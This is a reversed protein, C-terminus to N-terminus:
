YGGDDGYDQNGGRSQRKNQNFRYVVTMTIQRERWQFESNSTFEDTVTFQQRKRSNFLDRVNLSITANDNLFDKSFALDLSAIPDTKTQANERPGRYFANTQWQVKWPLDIKSSFRGFFSENEAGFDRGNFQGDSIFKFYNFSGNLRWWDTPNYLVGIEAGYRENSSLNIPISRIIPIGDSTTQGTEEQIREFSDTERQYYVSGNLTLLKDFRKLYGLDFANSFAPNLSPNGQFINTRSSRSPFPNVFWGRPRNIRRNYGLTINEDEGIEFNLNVTPFFGSFNNDFNLDVDEGLLEQINNIDGYPTTKGKLQTHEYRLGLLFSFKGIKNGYQSYVATVNENYDFVNSITDDFVLQGNQDLTNLRFDTVENEYNGRFGAEFQADGMPRVYDAQILLDTQDNNEVIDDQAILEPALFVENEEILNTTKEDDIAYQFDATLRHGESDYRKEFNVAFQHTMEEELENEVRITQSALDGNIFRETDNNTLDSDDGMRNFYSVTVETTDNFFYTSGINVNFNERDRDYDRREFIRDFQSTDEFYNNEFVANGPPQRQTYGINTFFNFRDTRANANVNIGNNLPTGINARVSGNFGLTKDRKLVINLIGASGEADYRASPSTIVEVKEIAEAPLQQLVDTSGFGAIASPKGNILIRVNNNGRLNIAGDVDVTVSPVNALADSITAGSTTLDKGINYIKKDLRVDVTTTEATVVVEDLSDAKIGLKITGLDKNKSLDLNNFTKSEFSIYEIKVNYTGKEVKLSFEGKTNTVGGEVLENTTPNLISITAYELPFNQSKDIVKGTLKSEQSLGIIPLLFILSVYIYKM